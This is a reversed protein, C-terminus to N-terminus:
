GEGAQSLAARAVDFDEMRVFDRPSYPTSKTLENADKAMDAANVFRQLAERLREDGNATDGSHALHHRAFASDIAECLTNFSVVHKFHPKGWSMVAQAIVQTVGESAAPNDQQTALAARKAIVDDIYERERGEKIAAELDRLGRKAAICGADGGVRFTMAREIRLLLAGRLNVGVEGRLGHADAECCDVEHCFDIAPDPHHGFRGLADGGRSDANDPATRALSTAIWDALPVPNEIIDHWDEIARSIKKALADRAAQTPETM